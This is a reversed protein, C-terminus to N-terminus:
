YNIACRSVTKNPNAGLVAHNDREPHHGRGGDGSRDEERSHLHDDDDRPFITRVANIHMDLYIALRGKQWSAHGALKVRAPRLEIERGVSAERPVGGVVEAGLLVLAPGEGDQVGGFLDALSGFTLNTTIFKFLNVCVITFIENSEGEWSHLIIRGLM